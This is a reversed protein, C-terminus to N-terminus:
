LATCHNCSWLIAPNCSQLIAIIASQLIAPNYHNCFQLIAIIASQLIGPNCHNCSQLIAPNYHNCSQLTAPNCFQLSQLFPPHCHNCSQSPQLSQLIAIIAPNCHICSQLIAINAIEPRLYIAIEHMGIGHSWQQASSGLTWQPMSTHDMRPGMKSCFRTWKSM